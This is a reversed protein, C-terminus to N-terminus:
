KVRIDSGQEVGRTSGPIVIKTNSHAIYVVAGSKNFGSPRVTAERGTLIVNSRISVYFTTATTVN